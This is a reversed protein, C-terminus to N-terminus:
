MVSYEAFESIEEHVENLLGKIGSQLMQEM